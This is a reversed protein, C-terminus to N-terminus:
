GTKERERQDKRGEKQNLVLFDFDFDFDFGFHFKIKGVEMLGMCPLWPLIPPAWSRCAKAALFGM